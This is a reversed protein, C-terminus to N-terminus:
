GAYRGDDLRRAHGLTVLTELVARVRPVSARPVSARLFSRALAKPEVPGGQEALAERVLNVQDALTKPWFLPPPELNRTGPTEEIALPSQENDV